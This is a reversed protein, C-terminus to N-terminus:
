VFLVKMIDMITGGFSTCITKVPKQIPMIFPKRVYIFNKHAHWKKRTQKENEDCVEKHTQPLKCSGRFNKEKQTNVQEDMISKPWVQNLVEGM